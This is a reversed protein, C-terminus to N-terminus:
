VLAAVKSARNRDAVRGLNFLWGAVNTPDQGGRGEQQGSRYGNGQGDYAVAQVYVTAQRPLGSIARSALDITPFEGTMFDGVYDPLTARVTFRIVNTM